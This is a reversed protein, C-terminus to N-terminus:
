SLDSDDIAEDDDFEEEAQAYVVLHENSSEHQQQEQEDCTSVTEDDDNITLDIVIKGDQIVVAHDAVDAKKTAHESANLKADALREREEIAAVDAELDASVTTLLADVQKEIAQYHIATRIDNLQPFQQYVLACIERRRRTNVDNHKNTSKYYHQPRGPAPM